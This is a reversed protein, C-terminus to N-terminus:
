GVLGEIAEWSPADPRWEMRYAPVERCLRHVNGLTASWLPLGMPVLLVGLLSRAADASRVRDLSFVPGKGLEVLAKLRYRGRPAEPCAFDGWFGTAAAHFGDGAVVAVLEDSLVPFPSTASLTSKGAGSQGYFVVAEGRIVMAASHLLMGGRLPLWCGLAARLVSLLPFPDPGDRRLSGRAAEPDLEATFFRHELVLRDRTWTMTGAGDPGLRRETRGEPPVVDLVFDGLPRVPVREGLRDMTALEDPSFEEQCRVTFPQGVYLLSQETM